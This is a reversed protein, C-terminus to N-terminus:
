EIESTNDLDDDALLDDINYSKLDAPEPLIAEPDFIFRSTNNSTWATIPQLKQNFGVFAIFTEEEDTRAPVLIFRWFVPLNDDIEFLEFNHSQKFFNPRKPRLYDSEKFFRIGSTNGIKFTFKNSSDELSTSVPANGNRIVRSFRNRCRGFITCSITYNDDDQSNLDRLTQSHVELMHNAFYSLIENNLSSDYYNPPPNKSLDM